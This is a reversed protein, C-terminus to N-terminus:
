KKIFKYVYYNQNISDVKKIEVGNFRNNMYQQFKNIDYKKYAVYFFNDKLLVEGVDECNYNSLYSTITPSQTLTTGLYILNDTEKDMVNSSATFIEDIALMYNNNSNKKCYSNIKNYESNMVVIDTYKNLRDKSILIGFVLMGIICIKRIKTPVSNLKKILIYIDISLMILFLALYVREPLRVVWVFYSIILYKGLVTLLWILTKERNESLLAYLVLIDVFLMFFTYNRYDVLSNKIDHYIVKLTKILVNDKKGKTIAGKINKLKEQSINKDILLNYSNTIYFDAESMGANICSEKYKENNWYDTYDYLSSRAKNYLNYEKWDKSSYAIKNSGMGLAVTILIVGIIPLSSKIIKKTNIKEDLNNWVGAVVLFPAAMLFVDSRVEYSLICLVVIGIWSDRKLLKYIATLALISAIVTFQQVVFINVYLIFLVMAIGIYTKKSRANQKIKLLIDGMIVWLSYIIVECFFLGYWPIKPAILYGRSLIYSLPYGMFISYASYERGYKGAIINMMTRDDNTEFVPSILCSIITFIMILIILLILKNRKTNININSM